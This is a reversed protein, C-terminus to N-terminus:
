EQNIVDTICYQESKMRLTANFMTVQKEHPTMRFIEQIDRSMDLSEM